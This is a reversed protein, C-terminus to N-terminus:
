KDYRTVDGKHNASPESSVICVTNIDELYVLVVRPIIGPMRAFNKSM